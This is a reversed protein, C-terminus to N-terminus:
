NLHEDFSMVNMYSIIKGGGELTLVEIRVKCIGESQMDKLYYFPVQVRYKKKHYEVDLWYLEMGEDIIGRKATYSVYDEVYDRSKVNYVAPVKVGNLDSIFEDSSYVKAPVQSQTSSDYDAAGPDIADKDIVNGDLDYVGDYSYVNGYSDFLANPYQEKFEALEDDENSTVPQQTVVPTETNEVASPQSTNKDRTLFWVGVVAVLVVGVVIVVSKKGTGYKQTTAQRRRRSPRSNRESKPNRSNKSNQKYDDTDETDETEEQRRHVPRKRREEGVQRERQITSSVRSKKKPKSDLNSLDDLEEFDDYNDM